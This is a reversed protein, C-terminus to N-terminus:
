QVDIIQGKKLTVIAKKFGPKWGVIRGRRREKGPMTIMRVAEVIVGYRRSVARAMAPKTASEGVRFAYQGAKQLASAKETVLPSFFVDSASVPFAPTKETQLVRAEAASAGAEAVPTEASEKESRFIKKWFSM